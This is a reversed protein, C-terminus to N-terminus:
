SNPPGPRRRRVQSRLEGERVSLISDFREAQDSSLARRVQSRVSDTRADMLDTLQAMARQIERRHRNLIEEVARRQDTDLGVDDLIEELLFPPAIGPLPTRRAQVQMGLVVGIALVGAGLAASRLRSGWRGPGKEPSHSVADEWIARLRRSGM